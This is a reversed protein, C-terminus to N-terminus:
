NRRARRARGIRQPYQGVLRPCARRPRRPRPRRPAAPAPAAPAPAAPAARSPRARASRGARARARRRSRRGSPASVVEVAVRTLVENRLGPSAGLDADFRLELDFRPAAASGPARARPTEDSPEPQRARLTPDGTGVRLRSLVDVATRAAAARRARPERVDIRAHAARPARARGRRTRARAAAAPRGRATGVTLRRRTGACSARRSRSACRSARRRPPRAVEGGVARAAPVRGRAPRGGLQQVRRRRPPRTAPRKSERRRRRRSPTRSSPSQAPGVRAARRRRHHLRARPRVFDARSGWACFSTTAAAKYREYRAYSKSGALKPNRPDVAIRMEPQPRTEPRGPSRTPTRHIEPAHPRDIQGSKCSLDLATCRRRGAGRRARRPMRAPRERPRVRRAPTSSRRPCSSSRRPACGRSAAPPSGRGSIARRRRPNASFFGSRASFTIESPMPSVVCGMGFCM